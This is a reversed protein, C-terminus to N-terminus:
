SYAIVTWSLRHILKFLLIKFIRLNFLILFMFSICFSYEYTEIPHDEINLMWACGCCFGFHYCQQQFFFVSFVLLLIFMFILVTQSTLIMLGDFIFKWNFNRGLEWVYFFSVTLLVFLSKVPEIEFLLLFHLWIFSKM